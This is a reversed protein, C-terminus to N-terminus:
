LILLAYSVIVQPLITSILCFIKRIHSLATGDTLIHQMLNACRTTKACVTPKPASDLTGFCHHYKRTAVASREYYPPVSSTENSLTGGPWWDRSGLFKSASAVPKSSRINDTKCSLLYSSSSSYNRVASQRKFDHLSASITSAVRFVREIMIRVLGAVDPRIRFARRLKLGKFSAFEGM